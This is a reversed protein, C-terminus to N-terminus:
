GRGALYERLWGFLLSFAAVLGPAALAGLFTRVAKDQIQQKEVDAVRQENGDVRAGFEQRIADMDGRLELFRASVEARVDSFGDDVRQSLDKLDQRLWDLRGNEETAM